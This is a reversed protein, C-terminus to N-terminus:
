PIFIIWKSIPIRSYLIPWPVATRQFNCPRSNKVNAIREVSRSNLDSSFEQDRFVTLGEKLSLQFWNKLTVRNGTWNHFYEHGIVKQINMFDEDTATKPIRWFM